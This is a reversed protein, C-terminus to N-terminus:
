TKLLTGAREVSLDAGAACSLLEEGRPMPAQGLMRQIEARKGEEDLPTVLSLTRGAREVKEIKYHHNGQAAVQPFHTICMVQHAQGIEHLKKGVVVATEGGINADIEDFVITTARNKSSLLKEIALLLRSIEGGSACETIPITREGVNPAMLFAVKDDGYASRAQKEIAIKFDVKPMNLERLEATMQQELLKSAQLRKQTLKEALANSESKVGELKKELEEIEVDANELLTLQKEAAQKYQYVEALTRGFKRKLKDIASLRANIEEARRPNSELNGMYNRLSHAVEEIECVADRFTHFLEGLAPDLSTLSEFTAASRSLAAVLSHKEGHLETHILRSLSFIEDAHTLLSYEAFLEDEEGEVPNVSTIEEIEQHLREMERLRFAENRHFEDVSKQLSHLSSYQTAFEKQRETLDGYLDLINRHEEESYLRQNAHQGVIQVLEIGIKKLLSAHAMQHNIFARSKGSAYLERRIILDEGSPMDIGAEALLPQLHALKELDFMVEVSAKEMGQRVMKMDARAGTILRLASMVASKGAGTEGTIVNFGEQFSIQLSDILILNKVILQKLM